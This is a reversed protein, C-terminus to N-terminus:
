IGNGMQSFIWIMSIITYIVYISLIMELFIMGTFYMIASIIVLSIIAKIPRFYFLIIGMFPLLLFGGIEQLLTKEKKEIEIM